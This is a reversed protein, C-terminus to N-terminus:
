EEASPLPERPGRLPLRVVFNKGEDIDLLTLVLTAEPVPAPFVVPPEVAPVSYYVFGHASEGPGLVADKLEGDWYLM